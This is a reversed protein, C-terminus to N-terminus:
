RRSRAQVPASAARCQSQCILLLPGNDADDFDHAYIRGGYKLSYSFRTEVLDIDFRDLLLLIHQYVSPIYATVSIDFPISSGDDQPM